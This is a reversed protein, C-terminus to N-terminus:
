VYETWKSVAWVEVEYRTGPKLVPTTYQKQTATRQVTSSWGGSPRERYRLRYNVPTPYNSGSPPEWTIILGFMTTSPRVQLSTVPGPLQLTSAARFMSQGNGVSSVTYRTGPKLVPTTYQKQTATRQVTRSWGGSPRERYRLRYTVPTPYNSGSPPEWTIILGFMTTSPRVQLSTVPGPLQLTSAARFM